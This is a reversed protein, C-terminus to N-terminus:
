VAALAPLLRVAGGVHAAPSSELGLRAGRSRCKPAPGDISTFTAAVPTLWRDTPMLQRALLGRPIRSLPLWIPRHPLPRAARGHVRGPEDYRPRCAHLSPGECAHPRALSQARMRNGQRLRHAHGEKRHPMEQRRHNTVLAAHYLIEYGVGLGLSRQHDM